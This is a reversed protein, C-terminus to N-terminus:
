KLGKDGKRRHCVKGILVKIETVTSWRQGQAILLVLSFAKPHLSYSKIQGHVCAPTLECARHTCALGQLGQLGDWQWWPQEWQRTCKGAHQVACLLYEACAWHGKGRTPVPSFSVRCKLPKTAPQLHSGDRFVVRLHEDLIPCRVWHYVSYSQPNSELCCHWIVLVFYEDVSMVLSFLDSLSFRFSEDRAQGKQATCPFPVLLTRAQALHSALIHPSQERWLSPHFCTM